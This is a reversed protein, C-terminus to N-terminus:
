SNWNIISLSVLSIQTRHTCACPLFAHHGGPRPDDHLEQVHEHLERVGGTLLCDNLNHFPSTQKLAILSM